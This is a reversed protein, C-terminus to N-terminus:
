MQCRGLPGFDTNSMTFFECSGDACDSNSVCLPVCTKTVPMATEDADCFLGPLCDDRRFENGGDLSNCAAGEPMTQVIESVCDTAPLDDSGDLAPVGTM